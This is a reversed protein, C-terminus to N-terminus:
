KTGSDVHAKKVLLKVGYEPEVILRMCPSHCYAPSLDFAFELLLLSLVVKLEAMAFNQGLCTRPGAGFPLYTHPLRRSTPTSSSSGGRAFRGPDFRHPDPGWTAVGHHLVSVPVYINVGAPVRVGALNVDRLAERAVFAGPPYLRLTEQIVMTLIKMKQLANADLSRGGRGCVEVAETRARAQWEPHLALLMLCWSAAVATTEHGAFYINKCNDVVFRDSFDLSESASRLIAQLLNRQTLRRPEGGGGEEEEEKVARLILANVERNLSQVERARKTPICRLGTIEAFLNPTAVANQLARLKQFIEKGRAYNSGFCTRSIVDASYRRLDEDINIEATGGALDVREQWSRLLPTASDVMLEVMGKVKDSFFEPAIIKRQRSWSEGNSKLIGQGFLPEHTKKLYTAKGLDSSSCLSIEKVVDPHSVHLAVVNGMSYSFVPGYVKRWHEFYPFVLPTYDHKIEATEGGGRGRRGKAEAVLRKMELSNGFPFSPPPGEVGQHRLRRRIAQPRIWAKYYFYFALSCAGAMCLTLFFQLTSSMEM